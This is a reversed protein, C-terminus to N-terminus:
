IILNKPQQATHNHYNGPFVKLKKLMLKGLSSRPLMGKVANFIIREPFKCLMEKFKLKKIGGIFGTHRYYIKDNLKNGTVLIKKSNLVIIFDGIDVHPSYEAKHKGCLIRAIKTSLRGLVKNTADVYYWNRKINLPKILFSKM